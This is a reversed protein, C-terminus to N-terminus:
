HTLPVTPHTGRRRLLAHRDHIGVDPVRPSQAERGLGPQQSGGHLRDDSRSDLAGLNRARSGRGDPCSPGDARATRRNAGADRAGLRVLKPVAKQGGQCGEARLYRSAGAEDPSGHGDCMTGPGDVGVEPRGKGDPEGPEQAVDL